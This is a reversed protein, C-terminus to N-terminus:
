QIIHYIPTTSELRIFRYSIFGIELLIVTDIVIVVYEYMVM